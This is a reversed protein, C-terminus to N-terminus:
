AQRQVVQTLDETELTQRIAKAFEAVIQWVVSNGLVKLRSTRNPIATATRPAEWAEQEKGPPVPWRAGDLGHATGYATRGLGPEVTGNGRESRAIALRDAQISDADPLDNRGSRQTSALKQFRDDDISQGIELGAGSADAQGVGAQGAEHSLAARQLWDQRCGSERAHVVSGPRELEADMWALAESASAQRGSSRRQSLREIATDDLRGNSPGSRPQWSGSRWERQESAAHAVVFVRDRRHSAGVACAPVIFPIATYGASELDALIDDLVMRVIGPVNEFFVFRPHLMRIIRRMEPWLHRDDAKGRRQGANSYPQCPPGGWIADVTPGIGMETLARRGLGRINRARPVDPWHKELVANCYADIEVQGKIVFGESEFALDMAGGGSFLSFGTYM